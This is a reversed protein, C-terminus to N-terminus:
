FKWGVTMLFNRGAGITGLTAWDNNSTAPYHIETDFVNSVRLNLFLGRAFINRVRFNVGMLFYGEVKEGLRAPPSLTTDFYSKMEGVYNGTMALSIDRNFFYSGKIYGLFKPSYGPEDRSGSEIDDGRTNETDQYTASLELRFDKVPVVQVAVEIGNTKMEGVNAFYTTYDSGVLVISRYMLEDLHNRFLSLNFSFNDSFYGIYNLELTQITEPKLSPRNPNVLDQNQFFSPRNIAKGYLLKFTNRENPSYILALRPIFVAKTYEYTGSTTNQGDLGASLTKEVTYAPVQELRAGAVVKLKKSFTYDFQTFLSQTVMSEGDTLNIHVNYLSWYPVDYTDFVRWVRHYSIGSTINLKSSPTIFLNLEGKYSNSGLEEEAYFGDYYWDYDVWQRDQFYYFGADLRVSDSITKEYGFRLRTSRAFQESGGSYSPLIFIPEMIDEGYSIAFSFDKFTGSFNFYKRSKELQGGTFLGAYEPGGMKEYSANMGYTDSYSANFVYRFEGSKDKGSTRLALKKTKESGLSATVMNLPEKDDVQDTIINIVGFFAGTGYIVSMPGRVVEIRDIAEPAIPIRDMPYSSWVDSVQSIGNVLIIVNRNPAETWFGRVGFHRTNYDDISYLGPISELIEALSTYGYTEIDERTVLVVSAPIEAIKETKKGATTIEVEMLEQLSMKFYKEIEKKDQSHSPLVMLIFVILYIFTERKM